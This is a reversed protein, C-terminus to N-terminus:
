SLIYDTILDIIGVVYTTQFSQYLANDNHSESAICKIKNRYKVRIYNLIMKNGQYINIVDNNINYFLKNDGIDVRPVLHILTPWLDAGCDILQKAVDYYRCTIALTLASMGNGVQANINAMKDILITAVDPLGFVISSMLPTGYIVSTSNCDAGINIMDIAMRELGLSIVLSLPNDRYIQKESKKNIHVNLVDQVTSTNRINYYFIEALQKYGRALIDSFIFSNEHFINHSYIYKICENESDHSYLLKLFKDQQAQATNGM